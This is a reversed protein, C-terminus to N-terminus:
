DRDPRESPQTAIWNEYHKQAQKLQQQVLEVESQPTKIGSKSKKKFAHLVYVARRFKVTYVGRYTDSRNDAVVELVGGGLGKLPKSDIHKGGQQAQWLAFGMVSKVAAPFERLDKLSSGMWFLPKGQPPIPLESPDSM